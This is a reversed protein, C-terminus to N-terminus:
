TGGSGRSCDCLGGGRVAKRLGAGAKVKDARSAGGVQKISGKVKGKPIGNRTENKEGPEM